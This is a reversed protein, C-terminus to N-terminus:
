PVFIFRSTLATKIADTVPYPLKSSKVEWAQVVATCHPVGEIKVPAYNMAILDGTVLKSAGAATALTLVSGNALAGIAADTNIVDYDPNTKDVTSVTVAKTGTGIFEGPLFLDGKGKAVRFATDTAGAAQVLAVTKILTAKREAFNIALFAGKLLWGFAALGPTLVINFGGSLRRVTREQWIEEERAAPQTIEYRM